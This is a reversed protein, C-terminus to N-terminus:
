DLVMSFILIAAIINNSVRIRLSTDYGSVVLRIGFETMLCKQGTMLVPEDLREFSALGM